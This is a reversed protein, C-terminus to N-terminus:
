ILAKDTDSEQIHADPNGGKPCEFVQEDNAICDLTHPKDCKLDTINWKL